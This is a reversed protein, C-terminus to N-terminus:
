PMVSVLGARMVFRVRLVAEIDQLPDGDIAILDAAYGPAVSGIEQGLGLAAANRSTASVLVNMPTDGAERVRCVLDEANRGHAGATADTGYLVTLRPTHLASRLLAPLRPAFAKLRDFEASDFGPTGEYNERHELYNRLVLGCQPGFSVGSDALVGLAEPTGTFGHEVRDCGANAALSLSSGDHAHVVSRLGLRASEGCLASLQELTLTPSGGDRIATSAVIKVFDAGRSAMEQVLRRLSDPTEARGWIQGTSTLIRPGPVAGRDIQDRLSRDAGAGMSAITTFGARLTALANSALLAARQVPTVSDDSPKGLHNFYSAIHVHADILGPLVTYRRLDYTPAAGSWPEVAVIRGRQITVSVDRRVGGRGDLLLGARITIPAPRCGSLLASALLFWLRLARNVPRKRALERVMPAM